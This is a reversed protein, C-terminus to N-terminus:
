QLCAPKQSLHLDPKSLPESPAYARLLLWLWPKGYYFLSELTGTNDISFIPSFKVEVAYLRLSAKRSLHRYSKRLVTYIKQRYSLQLTKYIIRVYQQACSYM